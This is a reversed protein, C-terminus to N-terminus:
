RYYARNEVRVDIYEAPTKSQSELYQKLALFAGVEVRADGRTNLKVYYGTEKIKLHLESPLSPLILTEIQLDKAKLQYAVETIFRVATSPLVSSGVQVDGVGAQDQVEPLGAQRLNDVIQGSAVAKGTDDLVFAGGATQVILRSTSPQLYVVPQRGVLPLSISVDSLEPFQQMLAERIGNTDLTIKNTNFGSGAFAQNAAAQYVGSDRFTGNIGLLVIRPSSNLLLNSVIFAGIAVFVVLRLLKAVRAKVTLNPRRIETQEKNQGRGTNAEIASRSARYSFVSPRRAQTDNAGQGSLRRRSTLKKKFM